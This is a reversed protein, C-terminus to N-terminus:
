QGAEAAPPAPVFFVAPKPASSFVWLPDGDNQRAYLLFSSGRLPLIRDPAFDLPLDALVDYTSADYIRFLRDNRGAVYLVNRNASDKGPAVAIPDSFGDLPFYQAGFDATNLQVLQLAAADVVYLYKADASFALAVPNASQLAPAFSQGSAKLFVGGAGGNFAAAIWKGTRDMAVSTLAGSFSSLDIVDGPVPYAPLGTIPQIWHGAQSYLVAVSADGSWQVDDPLGALGPLESISPHSSSLGQVLSCAGAKIAIAYDAQPAVFGADFGDIAPLQLSASGPFGILARFGRTPADFVFGTVPGTLSLQQAPLLGAALAIGFFLRRLM